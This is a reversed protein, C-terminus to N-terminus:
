QLTDAQSSSKQTTKPGCIPSFIINYFCSVALMDFKREMFGQESKPGTNLMQIVRTLTRIVRTDMLDFTACGDQFTWAAWTWSPFNQKGQNSTSEPEGYWLLSELFHREPLGQIFQGLVPVLTQFVGEIAFLTDAPDSLTRKSYEKIAAAYDLFRGLYEWKDVVRLEPYFYYAKLRRAEDTPVHQPRDPAWAYKAPRSEVSKSLRGTEM